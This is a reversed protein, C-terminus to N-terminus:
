HMNIHRIPQGGESVEEILLAHVFENCHNIRNAFVEAGGDDPEIFGSSEVAFKRHVQHNSVMIVIPGLAVYRWAKVVGIGDPSSALPDRGHTIGLMGLGKSLVDGIFAWSHSHVKYAIGGGFGKGGGIDVLQSVGFMHDNHHIRIGKGFM